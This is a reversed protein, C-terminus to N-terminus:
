LSYDMAIRSQLKRSQRFAEKLIRRDLENLTDPDFFNDPAQGRELQQQHNRMRLLQIYHWANIWASVDEANVSGTAAAAKLRAATNTESVGTALALIRASDVFPTVGQLKLDFTNPHEGGSSVAFDRLLGLPPRIRLANAALQQRFRSNRKAKDALWQRLEMAPATDGRLPRFDFYISANLLNEPTGQDLWHSFRQKWEDLSLCCEPNSAMINGSCLPFGIEDLAENIRRALPLLRERCETESRGGSDFLMGNDQDTRLTQELRGESGFALWTYHVGIHQGARAFENECLEIVRRTLADNLTSILLTLQQVSAGQAMMQQVLGQVDQALQRLTALTGAHAIGRSVNGLGVRQLSFLDRESVLGAFRGHEVVCVHGIGTEAMIMAAEWAFNDPSLVHTVPTMVDIVPREIDVHALAVRTMVDRLTFIGIPTHGNEVIAISRRQAQEIKEMAVRIPTGPSCSVAERNLLIRLPTNLSSDHSVQSATDAQMERLAHDLLSALRRTCFDHFVTSQNLLYEFGDRDLEYCFSDEVARHRTRAPRRALLAGIPFSEGEVLEWAGEDARPGDRPEGRVRGQKIIYLKQAVGEDPGTVVTNRAFFTIKLRRALFELHGPQMQAFPAHQALFALVAQLPSDGNDAPRVSAPDASAAGNGTGAHAHQKNKLPRDKKTLRDTTNGTRLKRTLLNPPGGGSIRFLTAFETGSRHYSCLDM